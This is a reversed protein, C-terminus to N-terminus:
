GWNGFHDPIKIIKVIIGTIKKFIATKKKEIKDV